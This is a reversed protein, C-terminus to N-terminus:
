VCVCVCVCVRVAPWAWDTDTSGDTFEAYLFNHTANKVRISRHTNTADDEEHRGKCTYKGTSANTCHNKSISQYRHVCWPTTTNLTYHTYLTNLPTNLPTNYMYIHHIHMYLPICMPTCIILFTHTFPTYLTYMYYSPPGLVCVLIEKAYTTLHTDKWPRAPAPFAGPAVLHAFSRGDMASVPPAGAFQPSSPAPTFGDVITHM